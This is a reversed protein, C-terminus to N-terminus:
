EDGRVQQRMEQLTEINVTYARRSHGRRPSPQEGEILLGSATWSALAAAAQGDTMRYKEGTMLKGAWDPGAQKRAAYAFGSLGRHIAGVIDVAMALSMDALASPPQWPRCAAVTEGNDLEHGALKWWEAEQALAYNSKAGDIRFHRRREEPPIGFKDAEELSMPTLTLMVRVAGTIASAGRMRDMDGPANNGKRDHHLILVAIGLRQALGRFAAIVARMATNDNEEANHLEALPDCVLVDAQSEMLIRELEAMAPTECIRGTDPQREFLTGIENPGCRIIHPMVQAGDKGAAMLAASYRRRQEDRDDEVNYNVVRAPAKPQFEGIAEGTALAVTWAVVLSSKGGAGQGSLVSASGRMLYGPVIWPRRPIDAPNWAGEDRWLAARTPGDTIQTPNDHQDIPRNAQANPRFQEQREPIQRPQTMGYSLGSQITADTERPELGAHLAADRLARRVTAQDLAGAAVLSGLKVASVNLQHNRGGEPAQAVALCEGGLAVEADRASRDLSPPKYPAVPAPPPAAPPDIADLLWGPAEAPMAPDVVSYGGSPPSCVYGGSARVDVGPAIKSVSNRLQRGHPWRFLLHRGGSPTGHIRTAPLRHKNAALWELGPAGGKIDLDVTFLGVDAGMPVGILAAAPHAFLRRLEAHDRTADYLGRPTLPRKQADCPFCPWEQALFVAADTLQNM